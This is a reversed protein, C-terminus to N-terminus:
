EIAEASEQNGAQAPVVVCSVDRLSVVCIATPKLGRIRDSLLCADRLSWECLKISCVVIFRSKVHRAISRDRRSSRGYPEILRPNFDM